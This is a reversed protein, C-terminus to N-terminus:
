YSTNMVSFVPYRIHVAKIYLVIIYGVSARAGLLSAPDSALPPSVAGLPLREEAGGALVAGPLRSGGGRAPEEQREAPLSPQARRQGPDQPGLRGPHAPLRSGVPVHSHARSCCRGWAAAPRGSLADGRPPAARSGGRFSRPRCSGLPASRPRASCPPASPSRTSGFVASRIRAPRLAPGSPPIAPRTGGGRQRGEASSFCPGRECTRSSRGEPREWSCECPHTQTGNGASNVRNAQM